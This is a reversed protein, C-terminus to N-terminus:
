VGRRRREVLTNVDDPGQASFSGVIIDPYDDDGALLSYSPDSAGNYGSVATFSSIQAIDGVLLVFVLEGSVDYEQQIYSKIVSASNGGPITSVGVITTNIGISNKHDVLPQVNSIWADHCIILMDGEEDLQAYRAQRQGSRYNLISGPLDTRIHPKNPRPGVRPALVNVKGPGVNVLAVRIDTYVRLTRTVPNYQFPNVVLLMGRVDRLIYPAQPTILKGPYFTDKQYVDGFTYPVDDPNLHRPIPGRSPIVDIDEIEYFNSEEVTAVMKLNGPIAVSRCIHPLEPEGAIMTPSEKGLVIRSYQQGEIAIPIEELDGIQYQVVIRAPTDQLVDVQVAPTPGAGYTPAVLLVLMILAAAGALLPYAPSSSHPSELRNLM